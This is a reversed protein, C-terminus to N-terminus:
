PKEKVNALNKKLEEMKPAIRILVEKRIKVVPGSAEPLKGLRTFEKNMEQEFREWRYKIKSINKWDSEIYDAIDVSNIAELEWIDNQLTDELSQIINEKNDELDELSRSTYLDYLMAPTDPNDMDLEFEEEDQNTDPSFAEGAKGIAEAMGGMAETMTGMMNEMLMDVALGVKKTIEDMYPGIRKILENNLSTSFEEAGPLNDLRQMENAIEPNVIFDDNNIKSLEAEKTDSTMADKNELIGDLEFITSQFYRETLDIIEDHAAKYEEATKIAQLQSVTKKIIADRNEM